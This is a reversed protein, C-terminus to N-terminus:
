SALSWAPAKSAKTQTTREYIVFGLTVWLLTQVMASLATSVGVSATQALMMAGDGEASLGGLVAGVVLLGIGVIPLVLKIVHLYQEYVAPGILYRPCQRYQEALLRPEGLTLLVQELETHTPNEPLMDAINAALEKAVEARDAAPLRRTVDYIYREQLNNM